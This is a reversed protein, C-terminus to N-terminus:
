KYSDLVSNILARIKEGSEKKPRLFLVGVHHKSQQYILRGFDKDLTILIRGEQLAKQLVSEDRLGVDNLAITTIDYGQEVLFREPIRGINEDLLLKPKAM